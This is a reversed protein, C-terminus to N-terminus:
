KCLDELLGLMKRQLEVLEREGVGGNESGGLPGGLISVTGGGRVPNTSFFPIDLKGLDGM